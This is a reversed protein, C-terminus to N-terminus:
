RIRYSLLARVNLLSDDQTTTNPPRIVDLPAYFVEAGLGFRDSARYSIGATGAYLWGDTVLLTRDILGNYRADVQFEADLFFASATLYPWVKGSKGARFTVGLEAGYSDLSTEDNSPAECRFPNGPPGSGSAVTARDCTVDGEITGTQGFVRLGLRWSESEYLPRAIALSLLDPEVGGVEVPPVYGVTASFGAPLGVTLRVRGFVSTRNLDELKTGGFGVRQEDESLSPVSGGEVAVQFEGAELRRPVELGTLASLAATRKMAWAEPEDFELEQTFDIVFQARAPVVGVVRFTVISILLSRFLRFTM